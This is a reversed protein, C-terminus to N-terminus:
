IAEKIHQLHLIEEDLDDEDDNQSRTSHSNDPIARQKCRLWGEVM